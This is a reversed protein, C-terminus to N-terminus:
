TTNLNHEHCFLLPFFSSPCLSLFLRDPIRHPYHTTFARLLPTHKHSHKGFQVQCCDLTDRHQGNWKSRYSYYNMSQSHLCTNLSHVAMFVIWLMRHVQRSTQRHVHQCCLQNGAASPDELSKGEDNRLKYYMDRERQANYDLRDTYYPVMTSQYTKKLTLASMTANLDCSKETATVMNPVSYTDNSFLM